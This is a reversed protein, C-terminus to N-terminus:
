NETFKLKEKQGAFVSLSSEPNHSYSSPLALGPHWGIKSGHSWKEFCMVYGPLPSPIWLSVFRERIQVPSANQRVREYPVKSGKCISNSLGQNWPAQGLLNSPTIECAMLLNKASIIELEKYLLNQKRRIGMQFGSLVSAWLTFLEKVKWHLSKVVLM